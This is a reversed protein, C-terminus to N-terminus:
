FALLEIVSMTLWGQLDQAPESWTTMWLAFWCFVAIGPLVRANRKSVMVSAVAAIFGGWGLLAFPVASWYDAMPAHVAALVVAFVGSLTLFALSAARDSLALKVRRLAAGASM